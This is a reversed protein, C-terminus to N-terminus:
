PPQTATEEFTLQWFNEPTAPQEYETRHRCASKLLQQYALQPNDHAAAEARFFRECEVCSRTNLAHRDRGRLPRQVRPTDRERQRHLISHAARVAQGVTGFGTIATARPHQVPPDTPQQINTPTQKDLKKESERHVLRHEQVQEMAHHKSRTEPPESVPTPQDFNLQARVQPIAPPSPTQQTYLTNINLPTRPPRKSNRRPRKLRSQTATQPSHPALPAPSILATNGNQPTFPTPSIYVEPLPPPPQTLEDSAIFNDDPADGPARELGLGLDLDPHPSHDPTRSRLRLSALRTELATYQQQLASLERLLLTVIACLTSAAACQPGKARLACLHAQLQAEVNRKAVETMAEKVLRVCGRRVGSASRKTIVAVLRFAANCANCAYQCRHVGAGM